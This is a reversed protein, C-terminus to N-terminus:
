LLARRYSITFAQSSSGSKLQPVARIRCTNSGSLNSIPLNYLPHEGTSTVTVGDTNTTTIGLETNTLTFTIYSSNMTSITVIPIVPMSVINNLLTTNVGSSTATVNTSTITSYYKFPELDYDIKISSWTGDSPSDWHVKYRGYYWWLPDDELTLPLKIGHLYNSITQYLNKWNVFDNLVNFELTGTRNKYLPYNTLSESLDLVGQGGPIDVVVTKLEPQEIVPRTKPVLHWDSYTNRNGFSVSHYM